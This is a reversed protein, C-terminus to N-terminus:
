LQTPPCIGMLHLSDKMVTHVAELLYLRAYMTSLLNPRNEQLLYFEENRCGSYM